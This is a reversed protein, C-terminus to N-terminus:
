VARPPGGHPRHTHAVTWAAFVAGLAFRVLADLWHSRWVAVGAGAIAALAFLGALMTASRTQIFREFAPSPRVMSRTVDGVRKRWM